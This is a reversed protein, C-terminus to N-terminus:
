LMGSMSLGDCQADNRSIDDCDGDEPIHRVKAHDQPRELYSSLKVEVNGDVHYLFIMGDICMGGRLYIVYVLAKEGLHEDDGEMFEAVGDGGDEGSAM